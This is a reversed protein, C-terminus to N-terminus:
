LYQWSVFTICYMACTEWWPGGLNGIPEDKWIKASAQHLMLYVSGLLYKGLPMRNGGALLEAINQFNATPSVSSSCFFFHDLGCWSSHQTNEILSKDQVGIPRSTSKGGASVKPRWGISPKSGFLGHFHERLSIWIPWCQWTWLRPARPDMASYSPM